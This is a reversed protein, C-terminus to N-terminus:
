RKLGRHGAGVNVPAARPVHLRCGMPGLLQSVHPIHTRPLGRDPMCLGTALFAAWPQPMSGQWGGQFGAAGRTVNRRTATGKRPGPCDGTRGKAHQTPDSRETPRQPRHEQQHRKRTRPAGDNTHQPRSPEGRGRGLSEDESSSAPVSPSSKYTGSSLTPAMEEGVTGGACIGTGRRRHSGKGRGRHFMHMHVTGFAM